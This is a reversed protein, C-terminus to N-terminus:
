QPSELHDAYRDLLRRLPAACGSVLRLLDEIADDRGVPVAPRATRTM